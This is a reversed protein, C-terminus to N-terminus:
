NSHGSLATDIHLGSLTPLDMTLSPLILSSFTQDYTFDDFGSHFTSSTSKKDFIRVTEDLVENADFFDDNEDGESDYDGGRM